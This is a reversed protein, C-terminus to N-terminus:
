SWHDASRAARLCPFGVVVPDKNLKIAGFMRDGACKGAVYLILEGLREDGCPDSGGFTPNRM